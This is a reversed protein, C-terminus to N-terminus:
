GTKGSRSKKRSKRIAAARSTRKKRGVFTRSLKTRQIRALISSKKRRKRRITLRRRTLVRRSRHRRIRRRKRRATRRRRVAYITDPTLTLTPFLPLTENASAAVATEEAHLQQAPADQSIAADISEAPLLSSTENEFQDVANPLLTSITDPAIEGDPQLAPDSSQEPLSPLKDFVLEGNPYEIGPMTFQWM